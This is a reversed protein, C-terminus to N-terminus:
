KIEKPTLLLEGSGNNLEVHFRNLFSMGLLGIGKDDPLDIIVAQVNSVIKGNITISDLTIEKTKFIGSATSITRETSSSATINLEKATKSPISVLSAGTDVIFKQSVRGNLTADLFISNTPNKEFKIIIKNKSSKMDSIIKKLKELTSLFQKDFKASQIISEAKECDGFKLYIEAGLLKIKQDDPLERVAFDYVSMANMNDDAALLSEIWNVYLSSITSFIEADFEDSNKNLGVIDDLLGISRGYGYIGVNAWAFSKLVNKNKIVAIIGPTLEDAIDRIAGIETLKSCFADTLISAKEIYHTNKIDNKKIFQTFSLFYQRLTDNKLSNIKKNLVDKDSLLLFLIKAPIAPEDSPLTFEEGLWLYATNKQFSPFVWGVLENDQVIISPSEIHLNEIEIALLDGQKEIVKFFNIKTLSQTDSSLLYFANAATWDGVKYASELPTNSNVSPLKLFVVGNDTDWFVTEIAAKARSESCSVSIAKEIASLPIAAINQKSVYVQLKNIKGDDFTIDIDEFSPVEERKLVSINEVESVRKIATIVENREERIAKNQSLVFFLVALCVLVIITLASLLLLKKGDFHSINLEYGCNICHAAGSKNTSKCKKCIM